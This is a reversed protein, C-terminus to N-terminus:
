PREDQRLAEYFMMVPSGGFAIAMWAAEDIEAQSFGMQRAMRIHNRTCPECKALVSLAIAIAQKTAVALAGPAGAAAMFEKFKQRAAAGQEGAKDAAEPAGHGESCCGSEKSPKAMDSEGESCCTGADSDCCCDADSVCCCGAASSEASPALDAIPRRGRTILRICGRGKRTVRGIIAAEAVGNEHLRKLLAAAKREAVAILLGGSTQADMCVDLMAPSVGKGLAVAAASSERNREVSGPIIGQAVCELVGPLLPLDDWVVEVDVRGAAAMEALHGMLGFGTVDTCGHAGGDLMLESAIKNLATMSRAAAEVWAPRARDIQAAFAILGTGLPKTLILADGPRAGARLTV